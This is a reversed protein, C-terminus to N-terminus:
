FTSLQKRHKHFLKPLLQWYTPQLLDPVMYNAYMLHACKRQFVEEAWLQSDPLQHNKDLECCTKSISLEGNASKVHLM